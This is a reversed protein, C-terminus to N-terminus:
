ARKKAAQERKQKAIIRRMDEASMEPEPYYKKMAAKEKETANKELVQGRVINYERPADVMIKYHNRTGGVVVVKIDDGIAFYEGAKITLNLMVYLRGAIEKSGQAISLLFDEQNTSYKEQNESPLM